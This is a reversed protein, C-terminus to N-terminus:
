DDKKKKADKAKADKSPPPSKAEDESEPGGDSGATKAKGSPKGKGKAPTEDPEEEDDVYGLGKLAERRQPDLSEEDDDDGASGTGKLDFWKKVYGRYKEVLEPHASAVNTSETPDKALDYVWIEGAEVNLPPHTKFPTISYIVKFDGERIVIQRNNGHEHVLVKREALAVDSDGKLSKVLSVGRLNNHLDVGYLEAVTPAIDIQTVQAEVKVGAPMGPMRLIFPVRLSSEFTFYHNFYMEHEGLNEGHDGVLVVGTKDTLGKKDLYALLRGINTDMFRVEAKYLAQPYEPDTVGTLWASKKMSPYENRILPKGPQKPNGKYFEALVDKPPSYPAHADWYHVWIFFPKDGGGNADLWEIAKDTVQKSSLYTKPDPPVDYIDDFGRWGLWKSVHSSSPFGATKYGARKFAAPLMDTEGEFQHENDLIGHEIGMVGTMVSVHSPNTQNTQSTGKLFLTGSAALKDINPTLGPHKGYASIHDARTTDLTMILLNRKAGDWYPKSTPRPTGPDTLEKPLAKASPQGPQSNAPASDQGDTRAQAVLRTAGFAAATALVALAGIRVLRLKNNKLM